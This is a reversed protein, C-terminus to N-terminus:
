QWRVSMQQSSWQLCQVKGLPNSHSCLCCGVARLQVCLQVSHAHHFLIRCGLGAPVSLYVLVSPLWVIVQYSWKSRVRRGCCSWGQDTRRAEWIFNVLVDAKQIAEMDQLVWGVICEQQRSSKGTVSMLGLGIILRQIGKCWLVEHWRHTSGGKNWCTFCGIETETGPPRQSTLM